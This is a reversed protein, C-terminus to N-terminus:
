GWYPAGVVVDDYGDGNVDGVASLVAGLGAQRVGGYLVTNATPPLLPTALRLSDHVIAWWGASVGAPLAASVLGPESQIIRATSSMRIHAEGDAQVGSGVGTSVSLTVLLTVLIRIQFLHRNKM